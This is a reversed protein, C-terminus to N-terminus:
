YYYRAGTGTVSALGIFLALGLLSLPAPNFGGVANDISGVFCGGSGGGGGSGGSGVTVMLNFPASELEGDSVVVPVSLKGSFGAAPIITTGSLTYNDGTALRLVYDQSASDPDDIDLNATTIEVATDVPTSVVGQGIIEPADNVSLVHISLDFSGIQSGGALFQVGVTLVDDFDEAPTVTTGNVTYDEGAELALATTGSPLAAFDELRITISTEEQTILAPQIQLTVVVPESREKDDSCAYTFSDETSGGTHRYIFSGDENLTLTGDSPGEVLVATLNETDGVDPDSDNILLGESAQVNFDILSAIPGYAEGVATPKNNLALTFTQTVSRGSWDSNGGPLVANIQVSVQAPANNPPTWTLQGDSDIGMGAPGNALVFDPAPRGSAVVTANYPVQRTAVPLSTTVFAPTEFRPLFDDLHVLWKDAMRGYGAISPHLRDGDAYDDASFNLSDMDALILKEGNSIRSFVESELATKYAEIEDYPFAPDNIPIIKAVVVTADENTNRIQNLISSVSVRIDEGTTGEAVNTGIHLLVVDPTPSATFVSQMFVTNAMQDARIAPHGEHDIDFSPDSPYPPLVQVFEGTIPDVQPGVLGDGSYLRGVFDVWAMDNFLSNWVGKRYGDLDPVGMTISDGLPMVKIDESFMECYNRSLYYHGALERDTLAQEYLAVEDLVGAFRQPTSTDDIYGFTLKASDSAFSGNFSVTESADLLGDVFLTANSNGGDHVLVIHHWIDNAIEKTGVLVVPTDTSNDSTLRVLAHVGTGVKELSVRWEMGTADDKRAVLVEEAAVGSSSRQVWLEVSFSEGASWDYSASAPVYIGESGDFRQASDVIGGSIMSPCSGVDCIGNQVGSAVIQDEYSPGASNLSWYGIIGEPGDPCQAAQLSGAALVFWFFFVGICYPVYTKNKLHATELKMFFVENKCALCDEVQASVELLLEAQGVGWVSCNPNTYFILHGPRAAKVAVLNDIFNFM